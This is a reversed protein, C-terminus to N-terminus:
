KIKYNTKQTLEASGVFAPLYTPMKRSMDPKCRFM